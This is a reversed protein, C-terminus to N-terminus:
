RILLDIIKDLVDNSTAGEWVIRTALQQLLDKCLAEIESLLATPLPQTRQVEEVADGVANRAAARAADLRRQAAQRPRDDTTISGGGQWGMHLNASQPPVALRAATAERVEALEPLDTVTDRIAEAVIRPPDLRKTLTFHLSLVEAGRDITMSNRDRLRWTIPANM